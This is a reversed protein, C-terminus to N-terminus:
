LSILTVISIVIIISYYSYYPFWLDKSKKEASPMEFLCKGTKEEASYCDCNLLYKNLIKVPIYSPGSTTRVTAEDVEHKFCVCNQSLKTSNDKLSQRSKLM